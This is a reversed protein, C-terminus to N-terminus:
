FLYKSCGEIIGAGALSGYCITTAVNGINENGDMYAVFGCLSALGNVLGMEIIPLVPYKPGQEGLLSRVALEAGGLAIPILASTAFIELKSMEKRQNENTM